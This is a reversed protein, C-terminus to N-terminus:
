GMLWVCRQGHQVSNGDTLGKGSEGREGHLFWLAPVVMREEGALGWWGVAAGEGCGAAVGLRRKAAVM